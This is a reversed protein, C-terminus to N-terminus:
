ISSPGSPKSLRELLERKEAEAANEKRLLDTAKEAVVEAIRRRCDAAKYYYSTRLGFASITARELSLCNPGQRIAWGGSM